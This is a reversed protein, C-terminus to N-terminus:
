ELSEAIRGPLANRPAKGALVSCLAVSVLQTSLTWSLERPCTVEILSM